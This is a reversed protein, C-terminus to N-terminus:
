SILTIFFPALLFWLQWHSFLIVKLCLCKCMIIILDTNDFTQEHYPCRKILIGSITKVQISFVAHLGCKYLLICHEKNTFSFVWLNQASFEHVTDTHVYSISSVILHLRSFYVSLSLGAMVPFPCRQAAVEVEFVAQVHTHTLCNCSTMNQQCYWDSWIWHFRRFTEQMFKYVNKSFETRFSQCRHFTQKM